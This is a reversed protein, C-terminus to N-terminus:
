GDLASAQSQLPDALEKIVAPARLLEFLLHEMSEPLRFLHFVRGVGIHEDHIIRAAETIGHYQALAATKVFIPNLFTPATKSYFETPWWAHQTKEGLFGVLLRLCAVDQLHSQDPQHSAVAINENAIM